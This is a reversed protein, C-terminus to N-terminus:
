SRKFMGKAVEDNAEELDKISDIMKFYLDPFKVGGLKGAAALKTFADGSLDGKPHPLYDFIGSTAYVVGANVWYDKLLPKEQFSTIREGDTNVIGYPSKFPFLAITAVYDSRILKSIDFDALLDGNIVLFGDEGALSKYANFLAGGSGLPTDEALYDIKVGWRSGDGLYDKLVNFLYGGLFLFSNIGRRKLWEIQWEAIPKGAVEVMPKPRENTIPRLRTGKGGAFIVAKVIKTRLSPIYYKLYSFACLPPM